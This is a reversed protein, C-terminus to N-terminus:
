FLSIRLGFKWLRGRRLFISFCYGNIIKYFIRFFCLQPWWREVYDGEYFGAATDSIIVLQEANYLSDKSILDLDLAKVVESEFLENRYPEPAKTLFYIIPIILISSIGVVRRVVLLTEFKSYSLLFSIAVLLLKYGLLWIFFLPFDYKLIWASILVFSLTFVYLGLCHLIRKTKSQSNFYGLNIFIVIVLFPSIFMLVILGGIVGGVGAGAVNM